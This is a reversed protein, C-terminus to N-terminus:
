RSFTEGRIMLRTLLEPTQCTTELPIIRPNINKYRITRLEELYDRNSEICWSPSLCKKYDVERKDPYFDSILGSKAININENQWVRGSIPSQTVNMCGNFSM